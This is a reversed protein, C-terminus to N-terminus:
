LQLIIVWLPSYKMAPTFIECNYKWGPTTINHSHLNYRVGAHIQHFKKGNGRTGRTNPKLQTSPVAVLDNIIKYGMTAVAKLRRQELTPRDWGLATQPGTWEFIGCVYRVARRQVKEVGVRLFKLHPAWVCSAYELSPRVLTQYARTKTAESTTRINRRVFGLSKNGKATIKAVHSHWSVDRSIHVDLYSAVKINELPEDKLTYVTVIISTYAM